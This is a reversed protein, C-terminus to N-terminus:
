EAWSDAMLTHPLPFKVYTIDTKTLAKDVTTWQLQGKGECGIVQLQKSAKFESQGIVRGDQVATLQLGHRFTKFLLSFKKLKHFIKFTYKNLYM